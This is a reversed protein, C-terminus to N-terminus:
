DDIIGTVAPNHSSQNGTLYIIERIEDPELPKDGAQIVAPSVFVNGAVISQQVDVIM